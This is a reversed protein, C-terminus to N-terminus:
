SGTLYGRLENKVEFIGSLRIQDKLEYTQSM